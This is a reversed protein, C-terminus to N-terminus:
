PTSTYGVIREQVTTKKNLSVAEIRITNAGPNLKVITSFNGKPDVIIPKENIRIINEPDTTGKVEFESKNISETAPWSIELSPPQQFQRYQYFLYSSFFLISILILASVTLKPTFNLQSQPSPFSPKELEKLDRRCIAVIKRSPLSLFRAYDKVFLSCYPEGPLKQFQNKELRQLIKLSIKTKESVTKLSLGLKKREEKLITGVPKM